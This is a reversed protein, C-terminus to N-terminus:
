YRIYECYQDIKKDSLKIFKNSPPLFINFDIYHHFDMEDGTFGFLLNFPTQVSHWVSAIKKNDSLKDYTQNFISLKNINKFINSNLCDKYLEDLILIVGFKVDEFSDKNNKDLLNFMIYNDNNLSFVTILIKFLNERKKKSNIYFLIPKSYVTIDNKGSLSTLAYKDNNFTINYCENNLKIQKMNTFHFEVYEADNDYNEGLFSIPKNENKFCFMPTMNTLVNHIIENDRMLECKGSRFLDMIPKIEEPYEYNICEPKMKKNIDIKNYILSLIDVYNNIQLTDELYPLNFREKLYTKDFESTHSDIQNNNKM